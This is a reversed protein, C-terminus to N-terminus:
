RCLLLKEVANLFRKPTLGRRQYIAVPQHIELLPPVQCSRAPAYASSYDFSYAPVYALRTPVAPM